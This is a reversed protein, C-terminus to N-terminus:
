AFAYRAAVPPGGVEVVVVPSAHADELEGRRGGLRRRGVRRGPVAGAGRGARRECRHELV